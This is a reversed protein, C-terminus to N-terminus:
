LLEVIQLIGYGSAIPAIIWAFRTVYRSCVDGYQTPTTVNSPLTIDTFWKHLVTTMAAAGIVSGFVIFIAVLFALYKNDDTAAVDLYVLGSVSIAISVAYLAAYRLIVAIWRAVRRLTTM